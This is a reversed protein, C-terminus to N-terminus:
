ISTPIANLFFLVFFSFSLFNVETLISNKRGIKKVTTLLSQKSGSPPGRVVMQKKQSDVKPNPSDKEILNVIRGGGRHWTTIKPQGGGWLFIPGDQPCLLSVSTSAPKLHTGNQIHIIDIEVQYSFRLWQMREKKTGM